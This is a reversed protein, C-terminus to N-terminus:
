KPMMYYKKLNKYVSKIKWTITIPALQVCRFTNEYTLACLVSRYWIHNTVDFFKLLVQNTEDYDYDILIPNMIQINIDSRVLIRNFMYMPSFGWVFYKMSDNSIRFWYYYISCPPSECFGNLEYCLKTEKQLIGKDLLIKFFYYQIKHNRLALRNKLPIKEAKNNM